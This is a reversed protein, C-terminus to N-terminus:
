RRLKKGCHKCFKADTDHGEKGCDRCCNTLLQGSRDQRAMEVTVIGTPVAIMGYGLIMVVAALVQGWGTQPSIDGYGVTTLTVIAWYISRPISTFGNEGGEIVYMASGIIVVVTMVTYLFVQIKVQSAKIARFLMDGEKLHRGLKLVRFVRLMRLVRLALAFRAQPFIVALYTPVVALFDVIGYFSIAYKITKKSAILRLIYEITFLITLVWETIRLAGGYEESIEPVSELMVVVVSLGIAVILGIDFVKGVKTDAEFIVEHVRKRFQQWRQRISQRDIESGM